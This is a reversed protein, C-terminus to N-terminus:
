SGGRTVGSPDTTGTEETQDPDLLPLTQSEDPLASGPVFVDADPNKQVEYYLSGKDEYFAIDGQLDTRFVRIDKDKLRNLTEEAPHGYENNAGCSIVAAVPDAAALFDDGTSSASGHHGLKLVTTKLDATTSLIDAEEKKEADGTFLFSYDGHDVRLVISNNNDADVIQTPGLITILASGLSYRDGAEPVTIEVNQKDLYKKFNQFSSSDGDTVPSFAVDVAAYNLAGALGGLHDDDLHTAVIYDLHTVGKEKLFTFIKDSQRSQGGDILMAHGDCLILSSDGQGVDIFYVIFQQEGSLLTPSSTDQEQLVNENMGSGSLCNIGGSQNKGSGPLHNPNGSLRASARVTFLGAAFLAFFLLFTGM